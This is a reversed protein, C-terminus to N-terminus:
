CATTTPCKKGVVAGYFDYMTTEGGPGTGLTSDFYQWWGGMEDANPGYFSGVMTRGNNATTFTQRFITGNFDIPSFNVIAGNARNTGSLQLTSLFSGDTFNANFVNTGALDYFNSTSGNNDRVEVSGSGLAVGTYIGSGSRPAAFSPTQVGYAFYHRDTISRLTDIPAVLSGLGSYTLNLTPNTAGLTLLQATYPINEPGLGRNVPITGAFAGYTATSAAANRNAASLAVSAIPANQLGSDQLTVSYTQTAPDYNVKKISGLRHGQDDEFYTLDTPSTLQAIGRTVVGVNADKGGVFTGAAFGGSGDSARWTAGVEDAAPGFFAGNMTGTYAGLGDFNFSGSFSNASSSLTGSGTLAGGRVLRARGAIFYDETAKIQGNLTLAGSAFDANLAGFGSILALNVFDTDAAVGSVGIAYDAAGTRPVSGDPTRMGYIFDEIQYQTTAGQGTNTQWRSSAVNKLGSLTSNTFGDLDNVPTTTTLSERITGRDRNNLFYQSRTPSILTYARSAADYNVVLSGAANSTASFVENNNNAGSGGALTTNLTASNAAFFQNVVLNKLDTNTSTVAAGRGILTGIAIRGDAQTAYYTAGVEQAAPGYFRGQLQGLFEGFDWFRFNGSFANGTASIKAESSFTGDPPTLATGMTGHTVIIGNNFDVQMLGSGTMAVINNTVTEIGILDVKYEARGTRPVAANPTAIGYTFADFSGSIESATQNTRQWFGAGVYEFTFRGSTGSKTLTLSDTISGNVKKYVNVGENSDAASIDSPLFTISRGAVTITYGRTTLDYTATLSSLAGSVTQNGSVLPFRATGTAADNVFSESSTLNILSTNPPPPPSPPPAPPPTIIIGGDSGGGSGGCGALVATAAIIYVLSSKKM